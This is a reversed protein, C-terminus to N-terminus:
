SDKNKPISGRMIKLKAGLTLFEPGTVRRGGPGSPDFMSLAHDLVAKREEATDLASFM